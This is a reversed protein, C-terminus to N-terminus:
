ETYGVDGYKGAKEDSTIRVPLAPFPHLTSRAPFLVKYSPNLLLTPLLAM